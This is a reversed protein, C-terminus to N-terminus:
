NANNQISPRKVYVTTTGSRIVVNNKSDIVYAQIHHEGRILPQINFLTSNSPAGFPQGNFLLQIAHGERLAPTLSVEVPISREGPTITAGQAPSAISLQEYSLEEDETKQQTPTSVQPAPQTNISPLKIPEVSPSDTPPNDTYTINGNEDVVRYVGALLTHSTISLCLLAFVLQIGKTV